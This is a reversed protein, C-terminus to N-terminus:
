YYKKSSSTVSATALYFMSDFRRILNLKVSDFMSDFRRILNLKVSDMICITGEGSQIIKKLCKMVYNVQCEIMFLASNHAVVTNPGFLLFFNPFNPVTIGLYATPDKEFQLSM